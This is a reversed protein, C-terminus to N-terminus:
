QKPQPFYLSSQSHVFKIYLNTILAVEIPVFFIYLIAAMTLGGFYGLAFAVFYYLVFNISALVAWLVVCVPLNYLVMMFGNQFSRLLDNVTGRSDFAFLLSFMYWIFIFPIVYVRSIGLFIAVILLIWFRGIYSRFYTIDKIDTSPRMALCFIFFFFHLMSNLIIAEVWFLHLMKISNTMIVLAVIVALSIWNGWSTLPKNIAGYVDVFAKGTVMLFSKLNQREFLRLSEKWSQILNVVVGKDLIIM